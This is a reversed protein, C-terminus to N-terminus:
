AWQAIRHYCSTAAIEVPNAGELLDVSFLYCNNLDLRRVSLVREDLFVTILKFACAKEKVDCLFSMLQIHDDSILYYCV